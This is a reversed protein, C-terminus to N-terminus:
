FTTLSRGERRQESGQVPGVESLWAWTRASATLGVWSARSQESKGEQVRRGAWRSM